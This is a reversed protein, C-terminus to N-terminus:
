PIKELEVVVNEIEVVLKEIEIVVNEIEVVFHSNLNELEVVFPNFTYNLGTAEREVM